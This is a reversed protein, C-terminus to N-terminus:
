VTFRGSSRGDAPIGLGGSPLVIWTRKEGIKRVQPPNVVSYEQAKLPGRHETGKGLDTCNTRGKTNFVAQGLCMDDDKSKKV